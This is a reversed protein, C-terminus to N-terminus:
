RGPPRSRPDQWPAIHIQDPQSQEQVPIPGSADRAFLLITIQSIHQEDVLRRGKGFVARLITSEMNPKGDADRDLDLVLWVREGGPGADQLSEGLYAFLSDRYGWDAGHASVLAEPWVPSPHKQSRYFEFPLRGFNQYFFAGDGPLVHDLVYTTAGRWDDRELDFDRRYYSFVGLISFISIAAAFIWALLRPQITSIGAAVVLIAAPLCPLMYRALFIPRVVSVILVLAVPVLLWSFVVIRGWCDLSRGFRRWLRWVGFAAFGAAVADLTMLRMGNNGALMVFFQLVSRMHTPPIWRTSGTGVRAVILGIPVLTYALWRMSGLLDKWRLDQRRLFGLSAGHAVVVLAGFIHSYVALACAATYAPWRASSPEQLNRVLLWTALAAFFVVLAYGRAEQAYRVHYANTALLWAALLGATRGFVRAGLAYLVPVTAVSFLVSLGRIFGETSGLALWFHLLVYYLAMNIERQRLVYFFQRWPLRAIEVSIGEDLWFSKVTIAHVRLVAAGLTILTVLWFSTTASARLGDPVPLTATVPLIEPAQSM